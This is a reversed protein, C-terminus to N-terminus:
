FLPAYGTPICVAHSTVNYEYVFKKVAVLLISMSRSPVVVFKCDMLAVREPFERTEKCPVILLQSLRTLLNGHTHHLRVYDKRVM